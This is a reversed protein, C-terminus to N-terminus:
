SGVIAILSDVIGPGGFVLGIGLAIGGALFWSLRGVWALFGMSMVAIIACLRGFPGTIFDVIAQFIAQLPAFAQGLEQAYAYDALILQAAAVLGIVLIRRRRIHPLRIAQKM